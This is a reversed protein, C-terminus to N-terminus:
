QSIPSIRSDLAKILLNEENAIANRTQVIQNYKEILNKLELVGANYRKVQQNFGNVTANYQSIQGSQLWEDMQSKRQNIQDSQSKLSNELTTINIQLGALQRDYDEVQRQRNEFETEYKLSYTVLSQRKKFFKQYYSELDKPLETVETALISHLENEVDAGSKQYNAINKIIRQNKLQKYAQNILVRLENKQESELRDYAAHLMEHAATVEEVGALRPENIDYIYIKQGSHYCGLVISVENEQCHENFAKKNDLSPKHVYFLRRAYDTMEAAQALRSIEAPPQYSRLIWWDRISQQNQWLVFGSVLLSLFCIVKLFKSFIKSM